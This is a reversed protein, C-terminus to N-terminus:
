NIFLSIIALIGGAIWVLLGNIKQSDNRALTFVIWGAWMMIVFTM